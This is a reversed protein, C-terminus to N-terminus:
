RSHMPATEQKHHIAEDWYAFGAGSDTWKTDGTILLTLEDAPMPRCFYYGQGEDCGEHRLFAFQEANEIGAAVVTVNMSHGVSIMAQVLDRGAKKVLGKVFSQDIKLKDVSKKQLFLLSSFGTGYDDISLKVGLSKLRTLKDLVKLPDNMILDEKMELELSDPSIRTEWLIARLYAEVENGLFYAPTINVSIPLNVMDQQWLKIQRCANLIVWESIRRILGCEIAVPLFEGPLVFGKEPHRWRLLAEVGSIKGTGMNIRPQYFLVLENYDLAKGIEVALHSREKVRVNMAPTFFEYKQRGSNKAHYMAIDANKLLAQYDEGDEPFVSIGASMSIAVDIGEVKGASRTLKEAIYAAGDVGCDWLIIVFEDGGWRAVTDGARVFASFQRAMEALVKDGADHGLSDNISKFNDLDLFMLALHKKERRALQMSKELRNYLLNRNPLKTLPDYHALFANNEQATKLDTIDLMSGNLQLANDNKKAQTTLNNIVWKETGDKQTIRHQLPLCKNKADNDLLCDLVRDRDDQHIMALWLMGDSHLEEESYGTVHLCQPSHYVSVIQDLSYDLSYYYENMNNIISVCQQQNQRLEEETKKRKTIDRINCQIVRDQEVMYINSVFEVAVAHGDKTMLPLDEYRVYGNQQLEDFAAKNSDIDRFLGIQWLKRGFLETKTYGLLKLLFPNADIIRGTDAELILIGDQATEFLRRYRVESAALRDNQKLRLPTIMSKSSAM